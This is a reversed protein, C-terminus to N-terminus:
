LIKFGRDIRKKARDPNDRLEVLMIFAGEGNLYPSLQALGSATYGEIEVGDKYEHNVIWYEFESAVDKNKEFINLKKEILFIQVGMKEYYEKIVSNM